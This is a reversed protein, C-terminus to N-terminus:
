PHYEDAGLDCASGIPRPEGDFDTGSCSGAADVVSAPSAATLHFDFPIVLPSKFGLNEADMPVALTNDYQCGGISNLQTMTDTKIGGAGDSESNHFLLNGPASVLPANCSVGGRFTNGNSRNFAVTNRVFKSGNTNSIIAVGGVQGSPQDTGNHDIINNEIDYNTNAGSVSIGGGTNGSLTSASITLTGGTASIGGGTNGSLTSASITLTGGTASIGVGQNHDITVRTL